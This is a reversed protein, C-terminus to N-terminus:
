YLVEGYSPRVIDVLRPRIVDNLIKKYKVVDGYGRKVEVLHLVPTIVFIEVEISVAGDRSEKSREFKLLGGDKKSVKMEVIKAAKELRSIILSAPKCLIFRCEKDLGSEEFLKSLDLGDSLSIIDFANLNSLSRAEKENSEGWAVGRSVVSEGKIGNGGKFWCGAKIEAISIRSNPNPDLMRSVLRRLKPSFWSPFKYEGKIIKRYMEMLNRDHFPLYGALLVYLVVGCSWIDAGVGDYGNREIIEPAVYGPTGCSTHLLGDSRRSETLASLGFDSVKVNGDGDLLINELKLDRHYVGRSHCFEVADMLQVFLKRVVDEPFKGQAVVKNFLEGGKAYEMVFYIKTKTAMVEYLRVVNPHRVLRMVSIEREIQDLLDAKRIKGKDIVKIAVSQGTEVCRAHYVKAFTGQGLLRGLEYKQMLIAGKLGM